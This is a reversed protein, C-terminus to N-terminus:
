AAFASRLWAWTTTAPQGGLRVLKIWLLTLHELHLAASADGAELPEWGASAVLRGVEQRAGADDGALLMVPPRGVVTRPDTAFNEFGYISFAKVFRAKPFRAQWQATGSGRNELGHTLGPGVPNTCDVVLRGDLRSGLAQLAEGAAAFPTCLFVVAAPDLGEGSSLVELAPCAARARAVSASQPSRAVVSVRHGLDAYRRALGLGVSGVGLFALPLRPAAPFTQRDDFDLWDFM